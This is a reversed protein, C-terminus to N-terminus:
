LERVARYNHTMLTLQSVLHCGMVFPLSVLGALASLALIINLSIAFVLNKTVLQRCLHSLRILYNLQKLNDSLLLVDASGPAVMKNVGGMVITIDALERTMEANDIGTVLGVNGQVSRMEMLLRAKDAVTLNLYQDDFAVSETMKGAIGENVESLVALRKIGLGKLDDITHHMNPKAPADLIFVAYLQELTGLMLYIYGQQVWEQLRHNASELGVGLQEFLEPPGFLLEEGEYLGRRGVGAIAHCNNIEVQPLDKSANALQRFFRDIQSGDDAVLAAAMATLESESHQSFRAVAVLNLKASTLTGVLDFALLDLQGLKELQRTGKLLVGRKAAATLAMRYAASSAVRLCIPMLAVMLVLLRESWILAHNSWYFVMAILILTTMWLAPLYTKSLRDLTKELQGPFLQADKLANMSQFLVSQQSPRIVRVTLTAEKNLTGAYVVEGPQKRTAIREGSLLSEDILSDGHIIVGDTALRQGPVVLIHDGTELAVTPVTRLNDQEVIWAKDPVKKRLAVIQREVMDSPWKDLRLVAGYIVVLWAAQQWLQLMCTLVLAFLMLINLNIRKTQRFQKRALCVHRHSGAIVAGFYMLNAFAVSGEFQSLIIGIILFIAAALSEWLSDNAHLIGSLRNNPKPVAVSM